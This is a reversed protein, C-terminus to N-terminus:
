EELVEECIECLAQAGSKPLVDSRFILAALYLPLNSEEISAVQLTLVLEGM